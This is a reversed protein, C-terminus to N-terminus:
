RYYGNRYGNVRRLIVKFHTMNVKEPLLFTTWVCLLISIPVLCEKFFHLLQLLQVFAFTDQLVLVFVLSRNPKIEIQLLNM